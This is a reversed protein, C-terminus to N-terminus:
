PMNLRLQAFLQDISFGVPDIEYYRNDIFRGTTPFYPPPNTLVCRDYSYRKIYGQGSSLGVAGRAEMILGGTLFLCGRGVSRGGCQLASTPGKDYDEVTFSTNMTMVVSHLFLDPSDDLSKYNGNVTQPTNVANDAVYTNRGAIIGLMDRCRGLAPDNAYRLDDLVVVDHSAYLTVASRLVGSVGVTGYVHIVGQTGPNYGRFLPFLYQAENGRGRRNMEAAVQQAVGGPYTLWRGNAGNPSFTTPTGGVWRGTVPNNSNTYGAVGLREVAALHPDGGPFCRPAPRAPEGARLPNNRMVQDFTLARHNDIQSNSLPPDGADWQAEVWDYTANTSHVSAPYFKWQGNQQDRHWDGCNENRYDGRLWAEEGSNAQYVRFFGEGSGTSDRQADVNLDLAVFDIRMRVSTPGTSTPATFSFSGASAYAALKGLVTNNPLAIPKQREVYGKDFTGYTKGSITQATGVDDRFRAGGSGISIDDNSWVPGYLDDGNNFYITTGSNNTERNSWYAFRAFSEQALELRRVYRAGSGDRAESVISAFRGFQGSTSGTQGAYLNVTVGPITQGDAGMITANNMMQAYSSDPLAYAQNNLQSKAMQLAAESAYRFERERDHQKSLIGASSTLYIASVVLAAVAATMIM